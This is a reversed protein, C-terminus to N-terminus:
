TAARRRRFECPGLRVYSRAERREFGNTEFVWQSPRNDAAVLACASEADREDRAVALARNVLATAIGRGRRPPAVFLRWVYAGEFDYTRALPDVRKPRADTLFLYGAVGGDSEAVVALDEPEPDAFDAYEDADLTEPDRVAFRVGAPPEVAPVDDLAARYLYMRTATVGRDALADYLARGYRNRTFKWLPLSMM